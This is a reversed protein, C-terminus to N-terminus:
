FAQTFLFFNVLLRVKIHQMVHIDVVKGKSLEQELYCFIALSEVM